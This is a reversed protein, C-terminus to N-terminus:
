LKLSETAFIQAQIVNVIDTYLFLKQLQRLIM